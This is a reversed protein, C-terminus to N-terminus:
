VSIKSTNKVTVVQFEIRISMENEKKCKRDMQSDTVKVFIFSSTHRM